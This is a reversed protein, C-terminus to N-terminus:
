GTRGDFDAGVSDAFVAAAIHLLTGVGASSYSIEAGSGAAKEIEEFSKYKGDPNVVLVFPNIELRGLMTFQDWKYPIGPNIAPVGVQSGVRALLLTYGDPKSNVV